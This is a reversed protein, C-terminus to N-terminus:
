NNIHSLPRTLGVLGPHTPRLAPSTLECGGTCMRPYPTFATTVAIGVVRFRHGGIRLDDGVRAQLADAVTRELVAGGARVWTGSTVKPQDVVAPVLDRGEIEAGARVPGRRLLAWTVPFPGSHGTVGAVADLSRLASLQAASVTRFPPPFVSAVVDPGLTAARTRAYAADQEGHLILGLTLTTTAVALSIFLLAAEARRRRLDRAALRAILAARGM